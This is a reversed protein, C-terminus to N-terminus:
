SYTIGEQSDNTHSNLTNAPLLIPCSRALDRRTPPFLRARLLRAGRASPRARGGLSPATHRISQERKSFIPRFPSTNSGQAPPVQFVQGPLYLSVYFVETKASLEAQKALNSELLARRRKALRHNKWRVSLVPNVRQRLRSPAVGCNSKSKTKSDDMLSRLRIPTAM